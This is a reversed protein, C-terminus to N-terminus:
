EAGPTNASQDCTEGFGTLLLMLPSRRGLAVVVPRRCGDKEDDDEDIEETNEEEEDEEDEEDEKDDEDDDDEDDAEEEDEDDERPGFFVGFAFVSFACTDLFRCCFGGLSNTAATPARM